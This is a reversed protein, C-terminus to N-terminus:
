GPGVRGQDKENSSTFITMARLVSEEFHSLPAPERFRSSDLSDVRMLPRGFFTDNVWAVDAGFRAELTEIHAPTVGHGAAGMPDHALILNNLSRSKKPDDSLDNLVQMYALERPTLSRNVRSTTGAWADDVHVGLVQESFEKFLNDRLSDYHLVTVNEQGLLSVLIELRERLRFRYAVDTTGALYETFTGSYMRGKVMQLYASWAHGAIDRVFLAVHLRVDRDRLEDMLQVLAAKEFRYLAESSYLLTSASSHDLELHVSRRADDAADPDRVRAALFPLLLIGNGSTTGGRSARKDSRSAPYAVGQELLQARNQVLGAQLASSGTKAVGIHLIVRRQTM